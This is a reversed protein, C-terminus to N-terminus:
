EEIYFHDVYLEQEMIFKWMKPVTSSLTGFAFLIIWFYNQECLKEVLVVFTWYKSSEVLKEVFCFMVNFTNWKNCYYIKLM